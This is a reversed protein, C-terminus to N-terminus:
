QTTLIVALYLFFFTWFVLASLLAFFRFPEEKYLEYEEKEKRRTKIHM